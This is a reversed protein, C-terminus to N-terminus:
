GAEEGYNNALITYVPTQPRNRRGYTFEEGPLKITHENIIGFAVRADNSKRFNSVQPSTYQKERISM